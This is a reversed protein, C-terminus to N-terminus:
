FLKGLLSQLSKKTITSKRSWKRIESKVEVLKDPPVRMEMAVSDFMVGLYVLEQSPSEAKKSSEELGLDDM